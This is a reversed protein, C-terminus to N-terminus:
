RTGMRRQHQTTSSIRHHTRNPVEPVARQGAAVGGRVLELLAEVAVEAAAGAVSRQEVGGLAAAAVAVGRHLVLDVLDSGDPWHCLCPLKSMMM